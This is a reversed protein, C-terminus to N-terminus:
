ALSNALINLRIIISEKPLWPLDMVTFLSNCVQTKLLKSTRCTSFHWHATAMILPGLTLVCSHTTRINWIKPVASLVLAVPRHYQPTIAGLLLSKSTQVNLLILNLVKSRESYLKLKLGGGLIDIKLYSSFKHCHVLWTDRREQKLRTPWMKAM